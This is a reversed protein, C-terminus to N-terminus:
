TAVITFAGRAERACEANCLLLGLACVLGVAKVHAVDTCRPLTGCNSKLTGEPATESIASRSACGEIAREKDGEIRVM